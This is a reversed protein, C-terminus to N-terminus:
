AYVVGRDARWNSYLRGDAYVNVSKTRGDNWIDGATLRDLESASMADYIPLRTKNNRATLKIVDGNLLRIIMKVGYHLNM